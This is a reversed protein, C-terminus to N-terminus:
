LISPKDREIAAYLALKFPRLEPAYPMDSPKPGPSEVFHDMTPQGPWHSLVSGVKELNGQDVAKYLEDAIAQDDQTSGTPIHSM